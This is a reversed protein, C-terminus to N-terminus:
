QRRSTLNKGDSVLEVDGNKDTRWVTVGFQQLLDLTSQNPHGYKNHAGVSIVAVQPHMVSLVDAALGTASGHHPVQLVDINSLFPLAQRLETAQSDGTLLVRTKGYTLLTELSGFEGSEGIMGHPSTDTLFQGLPGVFQLTIEESKIEDGALLRKVPIHEQQLVSQLVTYGTTNNALPETVFLGVTYNQLVKAFGNLHDAHPHTLIVFSLTRDWFAMHSSLCQLVKEDPGSDVLINSGKPTRIYIADGQGVNCFVIHLKGDFITFYQWAGFLVLGVVLAISIFIYKKM